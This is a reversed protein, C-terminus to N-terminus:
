DGATYYEDEHSYSFPHIKAYRELRGDPFAVLANNRFRGDAGRQAVSGILYADRTRAQELLWREAPGGEDEAFQEPRMTFGTPFMETLVILRAGAASAQDLLPQLAACTAPADEWVIDHQIAAVKM